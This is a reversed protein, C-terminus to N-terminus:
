RGVTGSFLNMVLIGAVILVMGVIAPLDLTQKYILWGFFSILIIGLGSWIAYTVGVPIIRLTLSLFYFAIAYGVVVIASPGLRSFGDAAKLATTAITEAVVAILLYTYVTAM